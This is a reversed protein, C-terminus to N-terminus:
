LSSHASKPSLKGRRLRILYVDWQIPRFPLFRAGGVDLLPSKKKALYFGYISGLIAARTILFVCTANMVM